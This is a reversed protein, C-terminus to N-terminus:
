CVDLCIGGALMLLVRRPERIRQRDIHIVYNRTGNYHESPMNAWQRTILGMVDGKPDFFKFNWKERNGAIDLVHENNGTYLGYVEEVPNRKWRMSGLWAGGADEIHFVPRLALYTRRMRAYLTHDSDRLVLTQPRSRRDVLLAALRQLRDSEDLATGVLRGSQSVIDYGKRADAGLLRRVLFTDTGFSVAPTGHVPTAM